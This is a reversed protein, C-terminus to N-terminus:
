SSEPSGETLRDGKELVEGETVALKAGYPISYEQGLGDDGTVIVRRSGNKMLSIFPVQM